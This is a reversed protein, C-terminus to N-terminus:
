SGGQAALPELQDAGHYTSWGDPHVVEYESGIIRDIVGSTRYLETAGKIRVRQGVTFSEEPLGSDFRGIVPNEGYRSESRRNSRGGGDAAATAPTDGTVGSGSSDILGAGLLARAEGIMRYLGDVSLERDTLRRLMSELAQIREGACAACKGFGADIDHVDCTMRELLENRYLALDIASNFDAKLREVERDRTALAEAAQRYKISWYWAHPNAHIPEAALREVAACLAAVEDWCCLGAVRVRAVLTELSEKDSM